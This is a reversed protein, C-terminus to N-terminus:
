FTDELPQTHPRLSSQYPEPYTCIAPQQTYPSSGETEM